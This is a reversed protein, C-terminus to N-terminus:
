LSYRVGLSLPFQLVYTWPGAGALPQMGMYAITQMRMYRAGAEANVGFHKGLLVTYGAQVGFSARHPLWRAPARYPDRPIYNADRTIEEYSYYQKTINIGANIGGYLYSKPLKIVRNAFLQPAFSSHKYTETENAQAGTSYYRTTTQYKDIGVGVQWKLINLAIRCNAYHGPISEGSVFESKPIFGMIGGNIGLEIKQATAPLSTVGLLAILLSNKM